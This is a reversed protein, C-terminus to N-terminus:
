LTNANIFAAFTDSRDDIGGGFCVRPPVDEARACMRPYSHRDLVYVTDLQPL